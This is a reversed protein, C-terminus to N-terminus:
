PLRWREGSSRDCVRQRTHRNRALKVSSYIFTALGVPIMVAGAIGVARASSSDPFSSSNPTSALFVFAAGVSATGLGLPIGVGPGAMYRPRCERQPSPAPYEGEIDSYKIELKASEDARALIPLALGMAVSLISLLVTSHVRAM